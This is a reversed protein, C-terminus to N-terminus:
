QGAARAMAATGLRAALAEQFATPFGAEPSYDPELDIDADVVSQRRQGPYWLTPRQGLFSGWMSFTSGSAIIVDCQALLLLDYTAPGQPVLSVAPENLLPALETAKGDSFVRAPACVGCVKRIERLASVYWELPLRWNRGPATAVNGPAISFDGLRVHIGITGTGTRTLSPLAIRSVRRMEREIEAHRGRIEQFYTEYGHFMVITKSRTVRSDTAQTEPIRPASALLLARRFGRVYGQSSWLRHYARKDTERRLYQGIRLQRWAPAIMTAGTDKCWLFCRAWPLMMNGM